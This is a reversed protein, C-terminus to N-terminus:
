WWIQRDKIKFIDQIINNYYFWKLRYKRGKFYLTLLWNYIKINQWRKIWLFFLHNCLWKISLFYPIYPDRGETYKLLNKVTPQSLHWDLQRPESHWYRPWQNGTQLRRPLFSPAIMEIMSELFESIAHWPIHSMRTRGSKRIRFWKCVVISM